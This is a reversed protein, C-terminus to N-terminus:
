NGLGWTPTNYTVTFMVRHSTAEGFRADDEDQWRLRYGLSMDWDRTFRWRVSPSATVYDRLTSNGGSADQDRQYRGDFLIDFNPLFEHSADWYVTTRQRANGAGSGDLSHRAGFRIDTVETAQWELESLAYISANESKDIERGGTATRTRDREWVYGPGAELTTLFRETHQREWFGRLSVSSTRNGDEDDNVFHGGGIFVGIEDKETLDHLWGGRGTYVSFNDFAQTDYYHAKRYGVDFSLRHREAITYLWFPTAEVNLRRGDDDLVGTDDQESVLTTEHSFDVTMGIVHLQTRYNSDLTLYQEFYNLSSDSEFGAADLRVNALFDWQPGAGTFDFQPSLIAGFTSIEENDAADLRINDDYLFEGSVTGEANWDDAFSASGLCLSVLGATLGIAVLSRAVSSRSGPGAPPLVPRKGYAFKSTM